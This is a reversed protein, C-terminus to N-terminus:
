FVTPSLKLCVSATDLAFNFTLLYGIKGKPRLTLHSKKKFILSLALCLFTGELRMLLITENPENAAPRPTPVAASYKLCVNLIPSTVESPVLKIILLALKSLITSVKHLTRPLYIIM